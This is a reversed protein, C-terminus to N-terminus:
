NFKVGQREPLNLIFLTIRKLLKLSKLSWDDQTRLLRELGGEFADGFGVLGV